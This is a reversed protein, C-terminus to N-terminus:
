TSCISNGLKFLPSCQLIKSPNHSGVAGGVTNPVVWVQEGITQKAWIRELILYNGLWQDICIKKKSRSYVKINQHIHKFIANYEKNPCGLNQKIKIKLSFFFRKWDPAKRFIGGEYRKMYSKPWSIWLYIIEFYTLVLRELCSLFVSFFTPKLPLKM